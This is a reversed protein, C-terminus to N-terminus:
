TSKGGALLLLQSTRLLILLEKCRLSFEGPVNEVITGILNDIESPMEHIEELLTRTDSDYMMSFRLRRVVLVTWLFVGNSSDLITSSVRQVNDPSLNLHKDTDQLCQHVYKEIDESLVEHLQLRDNDLMLCEDLGDILFCFAVSNKNASLLNRMARRLEGLSPESSSTGPEWPEFAMKVCREGERNRCLKHLLARYLGRVTNQEGGGVKWFYHSSRLLVRTGAWRKLLVELSEQGWLHKMLTSKGSGPTGSVWFLQETSQTWSAFAAGAQFTATHDDTVM